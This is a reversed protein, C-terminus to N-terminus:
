KKVMEVLDWIPITICKDITNNISQVTDNDLHNVLEIYNLKLDFDFIIPLAGYKIYKYYVDPIVVGFNWYIFRDNFLTKNTESHYKEYILYLINNLQLNSIPTKKKYSAYSTVYLALDKAKIM